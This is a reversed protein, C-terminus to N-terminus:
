LLQRRRGASRTIRRAVDRLADSLEPPHRVWFPCGFNVLRRAIWDLDDAQTRLLVGNRVAELRGFDSPIRRRAEAESVKLLVEVPWGSPFSALSQLVFEACDFVTPRVFAEDLTQIEAIRDLRFTRVDQRLHCWGAVYWRGHHHVVGYPDVVRQSEEVGFGQYRLWVRQNHQAASSITLLIGPDSPQDAGQTATFSLAGQVAQVRGRVSEPLVRDIKALAGEIAATSQVLMLRRALLLGLTLALAEEQTFM